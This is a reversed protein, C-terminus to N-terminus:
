NCGYQTNEIIKERIKNRIEDNNNLTPIIKFTSSNQSTSFVHGSASGHAPVGNFLYVKETSTIQGARNYFEVRCDIDYSSFDIDNKNTVTVNGSVSGWRNQIDSSTKINNYLSQMRLDTEFELDSRLRKESIIYGMKIDDENGTLCGKKKGFELVKDYYAYNIGKSSKIYTENNERSILLYIPYSNFKNPEYSAYVEYDGDSNRSINNIICINNFKIRSGVLNFAPYLKEIEDENLNKMILMNFFRNSTERATDESLAFRQYVFYITITAVCIALLIIFKKINLSTNKGIKKIEDDDHFKSLFKWASGYDTSYIYANLHEKYIDEEFYIQCYEIFDEKNDFNYVEEESRSQFQYKSKNKNNLEAKPASEKTEAQKGGEEISCVPAGIQLTDGENAITKLTGAKEVTLEFIAEDSELEAIVEDMEVYDGDKKIWQSLTVESISKGLPPGKIVLSM